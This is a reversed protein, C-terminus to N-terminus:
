AIKNRLNGDDSIKPCILLIDRNFEYKNFIQLIGCNDVINKDITSIVKSLRDKILNGINFKMFKSLTCPYLLNCLPYM